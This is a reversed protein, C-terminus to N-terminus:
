IINMHNENAIQGYFAKYKTSVLRHEGSPMKITLFNDTKQIVLGSAGAARILQGGKTSNIKINYLFDGVNFEHLFYCSGTLKSVTLTEIISKEKNISHEVIDLIQLNQPALIYYFKKINNEIYCIKALNASRNPDYEFGVVIGKQFFTQNFMIKRYLRKHGGGQHAVTIHGTNNRGSRKFKRAFLYKIRYKHKALQIM